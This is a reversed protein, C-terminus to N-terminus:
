RSPTEDFGRLSEMSEGLDADSVHEDNWFRMLGPVVHGCVLEYGGRTTGVVERRVNPIRIGKVVSYDNSTFSCAPCVLSGTLHKEDALPAFQRLLGASTWDFSM